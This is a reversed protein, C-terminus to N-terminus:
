ELAGREADVRRPVELDPVTLM